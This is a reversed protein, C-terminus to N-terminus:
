PPPKAPTDLHSLTRLTGTADALANTFVSSFWPWKTGLWKTLLAYLFPSCIAMGLSAVLRTRHDTTPSFVPWLLMSFTLCSASTVVVSAQQLQRKGITPNFLIREAWLAAGWSFLVAILLAVLAPHATFFDIVPQAYRM